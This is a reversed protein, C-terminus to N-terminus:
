HKVFITDFDDPTARRVLTFALMSAQLVPDRHGRIAFYTEISIAGEKAFPKQADIEVQVDEVTKVPPFQQGKYSKGVKDTM